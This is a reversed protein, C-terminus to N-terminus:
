AEAAGDLPVSLTLIYNYLAFFLIKRANAKNSRLCVAENNEGLM